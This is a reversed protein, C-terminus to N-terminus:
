INRIENDKNKSKSWKVPFCCEDVNREINLACMDKLPRKGDGNYFAAWQSFLVGIWRIIQLNIKKSQDLLLNYEDLGKILFVFLNKM